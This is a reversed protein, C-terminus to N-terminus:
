KLPLKIIFTTGKGLVSEVEVTGKHIEIIRKALSLGLGFGSVKEKSRSQDARYFRDFIHPLEDKAIGVGTDKVRIVLWGARWAELPSAPLRGSTVTAVTVKGGQPTFKVANDLFILLMEELSEENGQLNQSKVTVKLEIGKEKALPSIKKAVKEMIKAIDVEKFSLSHGNSQYRALSLLKDSLSQLSDAEELNDKLVKKAEDLSMKKDRLAVEMSTKLATLPTRLEHSADAVFRKQEELANEIPELTRGALFYGALASVGLIVGNILLLNFLLRRKAEKFDEAFFYRPTIGRLGSPLDEPRNPFFRPLPIGMEEARHRLEVRSFGRELEIVTEKYIVGSFSLSIVMIILLYWATLKVRASKFM